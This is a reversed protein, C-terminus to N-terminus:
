LVSEFCPERFAAGEKEGFLIGAECSSAHLLQKIFVKTKGFDGKVDGGMFDAMAEGCVEKVRACVKAGDLFEETM